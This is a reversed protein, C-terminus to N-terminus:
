SSYTIYFNNTGLDLTFKNCISILTTGVWGGVVAWIIMVSIQKTLYAVRTYNYDPKTLCFFINQLYIMIILRETNQHIM